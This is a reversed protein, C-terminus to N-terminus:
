PGPPQNVVDDFVEIIFVDGGNSSFGHWPRTVLEGHTHWDLIMPNASQVQGAGQGTATMKKDSIFMSTNGDVYIELRVRSPADGVLVSDSSNGLSLFSTAGRRM